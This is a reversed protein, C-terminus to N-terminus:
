PHLYAKLLEVPQGPAAQGTVCVALYRSRVRRDGAPEQGHGDREGFIAIERRVPIPGGRLARIQGQAAEAAMTVLLGHPRHQAPVAGVVGEELETECAATRM